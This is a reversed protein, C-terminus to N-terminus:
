ELLLNKAKLLDTLKERKGSKMLHLDVIWFNDPKRLLKITPIPFTTNQLWEIVVATAEDKTALPLHGEIWKNNELLLLFRYGDIIRCSKVELTSGVSLDNGSKIFEIAPLNQEPVPQSLRQYALYGFPAIAVIALVIALFRSIM